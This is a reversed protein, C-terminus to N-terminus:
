EPQVPAPTVLQGMTAAQPTMVVELLRKLLSHQIPKVCVRQM